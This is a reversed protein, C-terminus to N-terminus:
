CPTAYPDRFGLKALIATELAEMSRAQAETEHDYGLLHLTGHVTLHAWHAELKKGQEAAERRVLPACIVLDGLLPSRMGKPLGAPFALVNTAGNKHRYTRNFAASEDEDVLRITVEATHRHVCGRLAASVWRAFQSQVPLARLRTAKQM